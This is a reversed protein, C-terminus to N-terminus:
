ILGGLDQPNVNVFDLVWANNVKHKQVGALPLATKEPITTTM